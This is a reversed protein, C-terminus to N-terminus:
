TLSSDKQKEKSDEEQQRRWEKISEVFIDVEGNKNDKYYDYQEGTYYQSM